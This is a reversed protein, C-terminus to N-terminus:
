SKKDIVHDAVLKQAFQTDFENEYTDFPVLTGSALIVCRPQEDQLLSKFSFSPNFSWVALKRQSLIPKLSIDKNM